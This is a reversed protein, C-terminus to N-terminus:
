TVLGKLFIALQSSETGVPCCIARMEATGLRHFKTKPDYQVDAKESLFGAFGSIPKSQRQTGDESEGPLGSTAADRNCASCPVLDNGAWITQRSKIAFAVYM